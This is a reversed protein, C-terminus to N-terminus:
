RQLGATSAVDELPRNAEHDHVRVTVVVAAVELYPVDCVFMRNRADALLMVVPESTRGMSSGWSGARM